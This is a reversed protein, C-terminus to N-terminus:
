QWLQMWIVLIPRMTYLWSPRQRQHLVVNWTMLIWVLKLPIWEEKWPINERPYKCEKMELETSAVQNELMQPVYYKVHLARNGDQDNEVSATGYKGWITLTSAKLASATNIDVDLIMGKETEILLRV